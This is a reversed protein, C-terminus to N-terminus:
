GIVLERGAGPRSHTFVASAAATWSAHSLRQHTKALVRVFSERHQAREVLAVRTANAV